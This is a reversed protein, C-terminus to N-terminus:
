AKVLQAQVEDVVAVLYQQLAAYAMFSETPRPLVVMVAPVDVALAEFVCFVPEHPSLSRQSLCAIEDPDRVTVGVSPPPRGVPPEQGTAELQLNGLALALSDVCVVAVIVEEKFIHVLAVVCLANM